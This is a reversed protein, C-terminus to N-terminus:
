RGKDGIRREFLQNRGDDFRLTRNIRHASGGEGAPRHLFRYAVGQAYLLALLIFCNHSPTKAFFGTSTSARPSTGATAIVVVAMFPRTRPITAAKTSVAAAMMLQTSM